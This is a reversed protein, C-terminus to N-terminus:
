RPWDPVAPGSPPSTCPVLSVTAAAATTEIASARAPQPLELLLVLAEVALVGAAEVEGGVELVGVVELVGLLELAPCRDL